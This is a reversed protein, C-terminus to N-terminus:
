LVKTRTRVAANRYNCREEFQPMTSLLDLSERCRRSRAHWWKEHESIEIGFLNEKGRKDLDTDGGKVDTRRTGKNKKKRAM